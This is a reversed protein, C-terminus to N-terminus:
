LNLMRLTLSAENFTFPKIKSEFTLILNSGPILGHDYYVKLKNFAAEAYDADDMKGLHEWYILEKTLPHKITFDPYYAHTGILMEAEYRFPIGQQTLAMDIFVESKSRVMHGSPCKFIKQEPYFPNTNYTEITWDSDSGPIQDAILEFYSPNQIFSHLFKDAKDQLVLQKELNNKQELLADKKLLYYKKLALEQAM